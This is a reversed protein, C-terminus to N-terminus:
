QVTGTNEGGGGTEPYTIDPNGGTGGGGGGGTGGGTGPYTGGGGTGGGTNGGTNGGTTGGTTGNQNKDPDDYITPENGEEYLESERQSDPTSQTALLGSGRAITVETLGEPVEFDEFELGQHAYSMINAFVMAASDSTSYIPAPTDYGLWVSATYQPTYGCFWLDKSNDTTGTKGCTVRGDYIQGATGIGQTVMSQLCSTLLYATSEEMARHSEPEEEWIIDGEENTIRTIAHPTTYIGGNAFTEYAAAMELPTVGNTLGGLGASITKDTVGNEDGEELTTIGCRQAFDFGKDPGIQELCRAAVTNLSQNLAYRITVNGHYSLDANKITHGGVSYPADLFVTGPSMGEEFAPGYVFIPKFTSGPQRTAQTARNYTRAQDEEPHREGIMGAISGDENNLVVMAGQLMEGSAGGPFNYDSNFYDYMYSQLDQNLGTEIIYGGSYLQNPDELDLAQMAEEVVYDVYSRNCSQNVNEDVETITATEIPTENYEKFEDESIVGNAVMANLVQERRTYANDEDIVPSWYGPNQIIGALLAADAVTLDSAHKGLIDNAAAEIGYCAKGSLGIGFYCRNLYATLIEDKSYQGEIRLALIAEQIKRKYTKENRDLMALGAVQQTITSGGQVTEGARLNAAMAGVIRIPDVGHHDFFRRDEISTVANLMNDSIENYEVSVYNTNPLMKEVFTGDKDVIYSTVDFDTIDNNELSPMDSTAALIVTGVTSAGVVMLLLLVLLIFHSLKLSSLAKKVSGFISKKKKDSM